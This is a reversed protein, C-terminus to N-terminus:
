AKKMAARWRRGTRLGHYWEGFGARRPIFSLFYNKGAITAEFAASFSYWHWVIKQISGLAVDFSSEGDTEFFSAPEVSPLPLTQRIRPTAPAPVVPLALLPQVMEACSYVCPACNVVLM